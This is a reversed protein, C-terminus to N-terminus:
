VALFRDMNNLWYNVGSLLIIAEVLGNEDVDKELITKITEKLTDEDQKEIRKMEVVDDEQLIKGYFPGKLSYRSAYYLAKAAQMVRTRTPIDSEILKLIIEKDTLGNYEELEDEYRQRVDQLKEVIDSVNIIYKDADALVEEVRDLKELEQKLMETFM